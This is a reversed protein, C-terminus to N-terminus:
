DAFAGAARILGGLRASEASVFQALVAPTSRNDTVPAAGLLELGSKFRSARTAAQLAQSLRAVAAAPTGKPAYLGHWITLQGAAPLPLRPLSRAATGTPAATASVLGLGKLKGTDLQVALNTGSDCMVDTQGAMLDLLAPGTGKYPILTPRTQLASELVLACIHSPSGVGATAMNFNGSQARLWALADPHNGTQLNPRAALIMPFESFLGIPEFAAQRAAAPLNRYMAEATAMGLHHVLLTLGNPTSAGVQAMGLTGGAGARNEIVVPTGLTASLETALLRASADTLGGAAFPVM